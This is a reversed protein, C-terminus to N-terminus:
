NREANLIFQVNKIEISNLNSDDDSYNYNPNISYWSKSSFYKSYEETQFKRGHRAYIENRALALDHKSMGKIDDNTLLKTGSNALIYDGAYNTISTIDYVTNGNYTESTPVATITYPKGNIQETTSGASVTAYYKVNNTVFTMLYKGANSDYIVEGGTSLQSSIHSSSVGSSQASSTNSSSSTGGGSSSSSTSSSGSSSTGRSSSSSSSGSSTNGNSSTGSSSTGGNRSSSDGSGTNGTASWSQNNSSSTNNEDRPSTEMSLDPTQAPTESPLPSAIVSPTSMVAMTPTPTEEIKSGGNINSALYYVGIGAAAVALACIVGILVIRNRRQKRRKENRRREIESLQQKKDEMMKKVQERRRRENDDYIEDDESNEQEENNESNDNQEDNLKEELEAQHEQYASEIEDTNIVKTEEATSTDENVKTGCFECEQADDPIQAGCVKCLM